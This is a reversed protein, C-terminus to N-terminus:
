LLQYRTDEPPLHWIHFGGRSGFQLILACWRSVPQGNPHSRGGAGRAAPATGRLWHFWSTPTLRRVPTPLEIVSTSCALRSPSVGLAPIVARGHTGHMGTRAQSEPVAHCPVAHCIWPACDVGGSTCLQTKTPANSRALQGPGWDGCLADTPAGQLMAATQNVGTGPRSGPGPVSSRAGSGRVGGRSLFPALYYYM